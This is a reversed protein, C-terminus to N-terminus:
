TVVTTLRTLSCPTKTANRDPTNEAWAHVSQSPPSNFKHLFNSDISWERVPSVIAGNGAGIPLPDSPPTSDGLGLRGGVVGVSVSPVGLWAHWFHGALRGNGDLTAHFRTVTKTSLKKKKKGVQQLRSFPTCLSRGSILRMSTLLQPNRRGTNVGEKKGFLKRGTCYFLPAFAAHCCPIMRPCNELAAHGIMHVCKPTVAIAM